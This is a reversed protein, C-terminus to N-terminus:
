GDQIAVKLRIDEYLEQNAFMYALMSRLAEACPKKKIKLLTLSCCIIATTTISRSFFLM